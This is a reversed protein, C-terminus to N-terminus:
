HPGIGDAVYGCILFAYRGVSSSGVGNMSADTNIDPHSIWGYATHDWEEYNAFSILATRWHSISSSYRKLATRSQFDGCGQLEPKRVFSIAGSEPQTTVFALTKEAATLLRDAGEIDPTKPMAVTCFITSSIKYFFSGSERSMSRYSM